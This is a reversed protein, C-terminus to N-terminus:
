KLKNLQAALRSKKRNATEKKVTGSKAAKDFRSSVERFAKAAEDKSSATIAALFVKEEKRLVSKVGRNRLRRREGQRARKEASKTNAM